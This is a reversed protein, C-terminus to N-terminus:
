PKIFVFHEIIGFHFAQSEFVFGFHNHRTRRGVRQLDVPCFEAFDGIFDACVEKDVHRVVGSQNKPPSYGLGTGNQSKTVVVM